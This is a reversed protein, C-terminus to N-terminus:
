PVIPATTLSFDAIMGFDFGAALVVLVVATVSAFPATLLYRNILQRVLGGLVLPYFLMVRTM